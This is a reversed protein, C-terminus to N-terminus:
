SFNELVSNPVDLSLFLVRVAYVSKKFFNRAEGTGMVRLCTTDAFYDLPVFERLVSKVHRMFTNPYSLLKLQKRKPM